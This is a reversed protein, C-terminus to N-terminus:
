LAVQEQCALGFIQLGDVVRGLHQLRSQDRLSKVSVESLEIRGPEAHKQIHGTIDLTKAFMSNVEGSDDIVVNGTHIGMRLVFPLSLRNQTGNFRDLDSQLNRAAGLCDEVREFCAMVGDGATSHIRGSYASVMREVFDHYAVFSYQALFPDESEKLELSHCVDICLFTRTQLNQTMKQHLRAYQALKVELSQQNQWRQILLKIEGLVQIPKTIYDFAGERMARVAKGVDVSGSIMIVCVDPYHTKIHTLLELGDMGPMELDSLVVDPKKEVEQLIDWASQGDDATLVHFEDALFDSILNTIEADDDVILVTLKEAGNM